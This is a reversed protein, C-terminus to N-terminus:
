WTPPSAISCRACQLPFASRSVPFASRLRRPPGPRDDVTRSTLPRARARSRERERYICTKTWRVLLRHLERGARISKRNRRKERSRARTRARARGRVETTSEFICQYRCRARGSAGRRRAQKSRQGIVELRGESVKRAGGRIVKWFARQTGLGGSGGPGAARLQRAPPGGQAPERGRAACRDRGSKSSGDM